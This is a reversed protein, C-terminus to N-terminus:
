VVWVVVTGGGGGFHLEGLVENGQSGEERAMAAGASVVDISVRLPLAMAPVTTTFM